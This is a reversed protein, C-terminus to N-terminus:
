NFTHHHLSRCVRIESGTIAVQVEINGVEMGYKQTRVVTNRAANAQDMEIV